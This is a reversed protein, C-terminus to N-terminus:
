FTLAKLSVTSDGLTMRGTKMNLSAKVGVHSFEAENSTLFDHYQSMVGPQYGRKYEGIGALKRCYLGLRWKQRDRLKKKHVLCSVFGCGDQMAWGLLEPRWFVDRSVKPRFQGM